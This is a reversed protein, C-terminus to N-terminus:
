MQGEEGWGERQSGVQRISGVQHSVKHGPVLLPSSSAPSAWVETQEPRPLFLRLVRLWERNRGMRSGAWAGTVQWTNRGRPKKQGPIPCPGSHHPLLGSLKASGSCGLLVRGGAAAEPFGGQIPQLSEAESPELYSITYRGKPLTSVDQLLFSQSPLPLCEPGTM